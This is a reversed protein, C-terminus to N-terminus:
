SEKFNNYRWNHM